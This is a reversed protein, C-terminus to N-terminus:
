DVAQANRFSRIKSAYYHTPVTKFQCPPEIGFVPKGM